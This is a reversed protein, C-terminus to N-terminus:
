RLVLKRQVQCGLNQLMARYHFLEQPDKNVLLIRAQNRKGLGDAFGNVKEPSPKNEEKM